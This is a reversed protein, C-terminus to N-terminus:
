TGVDLKSNQRGAWGQYMLELPTRVNYGFVLEFPSMGSDRNPAQRFTFLVFPIQQAWDLGKQHAKTLMQELTGHMREIMGNTQPHYATTKLKDIGLSECLETMLRGIFQSGQDTLLSFPLATRSFIQIM